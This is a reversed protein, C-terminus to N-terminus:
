VTTYALVITLIVYAILVVGLLTFLTSKRERSANRDVFPIAVWFITGLLVLINVLLEGSVSLIAAPVMKLTQYLPLFYWEPKIGFPASAFPDAKDGLGWPLLTALSVLIGFGITWSIIDRYAFNPFFPIPAKRPTVGIPVSPGFIQNLIIHCGVILFSILPLVMTHITYMRALTEEGVEESGKLLGVGWDGIVPVTRPVETGILTAFYGTTDWPLLYGTFGFGFILFLLVVGSVWMMERPKRYAKVLFASFMHVLMSGIMLNAAWSHISRVLWGYPVQNVIGRVSEHAAEPTPHYYLALLLGTMIQVAFFFLTLGGFYYWFTQGHVPVTKKSLYGEVDAVPLRAELWERISSRYRMIKSM